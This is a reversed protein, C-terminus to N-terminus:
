LTVIREIAPLFVSEYFGDHRARIGDLRVDFRDYIGKSAIPGKGTALMVYGPTHIHDLVELYADTHMYIDENLLVAYDDQEDCVRLAHDHLNEYDDPDEIYGRLFLICWFFAPMVRADGKLTLKYVPVRNDEFTGINHYLKRKGCHMTVNFYQKLFNATDSKLQEPLDLWDLENFLIQVQVQAKARKMLMIQFTTVTAFTVNEAGCYEIFKIHAWEKWQDAVSAAALERCNSRTFQTNDFRKQNWTLSSSIWFDLEM